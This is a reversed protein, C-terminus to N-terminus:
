FPLKTAFKLHIGQANQAVRLAEVRAHVTHQGSM